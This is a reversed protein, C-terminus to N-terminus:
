WQHQIALVSDPRRRRLRVTRRVFTLRGLFARTTEPESVEVVEESRTFYWALVAIVAIAAILLLLLAIRRRPRRGGRLLADIDVDQTSM